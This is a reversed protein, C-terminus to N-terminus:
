YYTGNNHDIMVDNINASLPSTAGTPECYYANYKTCKNSIKVTFIDGGTTLLNGSSDKATVTISLIDGTFMSSSGLGAVVSNVASAVSLSRHNPQNTHDRM